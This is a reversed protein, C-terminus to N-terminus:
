PRGGTGEPANMETSPSGTNALMRKFDPPAEPRFLERQEMLLAELLILYNIMNGIKENVISMDNDLRGEVLDEVSVLHKVAIGWLAKVPNTGLMRGAAKFNHLRDGALGYEKAKSGLIERTRALRANLVEAFEKNNM